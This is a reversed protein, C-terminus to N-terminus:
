AWSQIEHDVLAQRASRDPQRAGLRRAEVQETSFAQKARDSIVDNLLLQFERDNVRGANLSHRSDDILLMRIPNLRLLDRWKADFSVFYPVFFSGLQSQRTTDQLARLHTMDWAMGRSAHVIKHSPNILPGFFPAVDKERIGSWILTLETAPFSGLEFLSFDVLDRMVARRDRAHAKWLSAFRLLLAHTGLALAEQRLVREDLHLSALFAEEAPRLRERLSDVSADFVLQTPDDRFAEWDLHDLMRFAILTDLPRLNKPDDRTLQTNELLFPMVDFQVRPNVAKLSLVEIVRAREVPDIGKGFVHCRLREAFNSDFGLSYDILVNSQGGSIVQQIATHRSMLRARPGEFIPIVYECSQLGLGLDLDVAGPAGTCALFRLDLCELARHQQIAQIQEDDGNLLAEYLADIVPRDKM